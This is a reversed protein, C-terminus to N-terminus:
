STAASSKLNAGVMGRGNIQAVQKSHHPPSEGQRVFAANKRYNRSKGSVRKRAVANRVELMLLSSAARMRRRPRDVVKLRAGIHEFKKNLLATDM